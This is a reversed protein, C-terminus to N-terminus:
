RKKRRPKGQKTTRTGRPMGPPGDRDCKSTSRASSPPLSRRRLEGSRPAAASRRRGDEPEPADGRAAYEARLGRGASGCSRKKVSERGPPEGRVAGRRAEASIRDTWRSEEVHPVCREAAFGAGPEVGAGAAVPGRTSMPTCSAATATSSSKWRRCMSISSRRCALCRRFLGGAAATPGQRLCRLVAARRSRKACSWCKAPASVNEAIQMSRLLGPM